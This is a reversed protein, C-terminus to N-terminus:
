CAHAVFSWLGYFASIILVVTAAEITREPRRSWYWLVRALSRPRAHIADGDLYRQLDSALDQADAYRDKMEKELCKLCITELDKPIQSNLKRPRPPDETLIQVILMQKQGRFPREGTLMEFLMVGLSYIDSRRDANHGEGRAQEPSMYAPTGVIAGDLTMTVEGSERKALGFDLVRPQGDRDVMVNGPKMDRHVVGHEHAHQLACAITAALEAAERPPLPQGNLSEGLTVGEIYDGVICVSDNDMVVEHISVINPHRLQAATRAERLFRETEAESLQGKRPVKIAVLRDLQSDWAKWVTGFAGVGLQQVLAFHGIQKVAARATEDTHGILSFSSGCSSCVIDRFSSEDM